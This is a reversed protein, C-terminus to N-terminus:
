IQGCRAMSNLTALDITSEVGNFSIKCINKDILFKIIREARTSGIAFHRQIASQTVVGNNNIWVAIEFALKDIENCNEADDNNYRIKENIENLMNIITTLRTDLRIYYDALRTLKNNVCMLAILSGAAFATLILIAIMFSDTTNM